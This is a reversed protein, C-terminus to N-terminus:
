LSPIRDMIRQKARPMAFRKVTKTTIMMMLAIHRYTEVGGM